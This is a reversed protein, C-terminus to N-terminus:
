QKFIYSKCLMTLDDKLSSRRIYTPAQEVGRRHQGKRFPVGIFGATYTKRVSM